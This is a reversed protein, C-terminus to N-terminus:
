RNKTIYSSGLFDDLWQQIHDCSVDGNVTEIIRTFSTSSYNVKLYRGPKCIILQNSYKGSPTLAFICHVRSANTRKHKFSLRTIDNDLMGIGPIVTRSNTPILISVCFLFWIQEIDVLPNIFNIQKVTDSTM